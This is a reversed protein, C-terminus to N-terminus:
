LGVFRMIHADCCFAYNGYHKCTSETMEKGCEACYVVGNFPVYEGLGKSPFQDKTPDVISGDPKVAWWHAQEGWIPCHYHGRVATLTNDALIAADVFEKCKGRYKM